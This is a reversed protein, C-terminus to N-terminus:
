LYGLPNVTSGNIIIEFHLHSGTSHGTSGVLGIPQGKSVRQGVRVLLRSSHGYRTQVGNGHDILICNGYGGDWAALTVVGDGAAYYTDGTEGDIDIGTHGRRGGYGSTIAGRLPWGIGSISGSGRSASAVTTRTAAPGKAIVANVSAQTIQESLITKEVIRGNKTTFRFNVQKAGDKGDSVTKTKGPSLSNDIKSVTSFPIVEERTQTGKVIVTFYPQSKVIDLKQGIKLVAQVSLNPNDDLLESIRMDNNRAITWLTDKEKIQYNITQIKGKLLSELAIDAPAIQEPQADVEAIEVKEVFDASEITQEEPKCFNDKVKKLVDDAQQKSALSLVTQGNVNIAYGKVLVKLKQSLLDTATQDSDIQYEKVRVWQSGIQDKTVGIQGASKGKETLVTSIIRQIDAKNKVVTVQQGNVTIAYAGTASNLFVGVGALSIAIVTIVVIGKPSKWNVRRLFRTARHFGVIKITSQLATKINLRNLILIFRKKGAGSFETLVKLWDKGDNFKRNM